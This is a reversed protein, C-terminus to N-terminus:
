GSDVRTLLGDPLKALMGAHALSGPYGPDQLLVVDAPSNEGEELITPAITASGAYKVQIDTGMDEIFSELLPSVSTQSRGSYLNLSNSDLSCVPLFDAVAMFLM